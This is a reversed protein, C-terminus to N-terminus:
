STTSTCGGPPTSCSWTTAASRRRSSRAGPSPSRRGPRPRDAPHRRRGPDRPDRAAGDGGPPPHRALGDAGAQGRPGQAAARAERDDHDQGLGAARGDPDARAALRRAPARARGRRAADRRARRARDQGGAPGADGVQDGGPRAGQRRGVPRLLPGGAALRRGRAARHPGRAARDLHGRRDARGPPHAQRLRRLAPRQPDRVHDGGELRRDRRHACRASRRRDQAIVPGSPM